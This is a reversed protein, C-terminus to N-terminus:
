EELRRLSDIDLHEYDTGYDVDQICLLRRSESDLDDTVSYPVNASQSWLRSLFRQETLTAQKTILSVSREGEEEQMVIHHRLLEVAQMGMNIPKSTIHLVRGDPSIHRKITEEILTHVVHQKM